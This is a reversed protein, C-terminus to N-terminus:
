EEGFFDTLLFRLKRKLNAYSYFKKALLYNHDVMAKVRSKNTLIDIVDKVTEEKVFEDIEVVDFGKPKIDHFYISDTTDWRQNEINRYGLSYEINLLLFTM